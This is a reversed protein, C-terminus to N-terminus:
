MADLLRQADARSAFPQSASLLGSLIERSQARQGAGRLAYAYHYEVEPDGTLVKAAHALLPVARLANGNRALVWGLTDDVDASEPALQHAQEALPEARSDNLRSYIWALNNLATVSQPARGLATEFEVAAPRLSRISLYYGGLVEHVRWDDPTRTLWQELPEEPHAQHTALRTRFLQTAVVATPRIAQAQAYATLAADTDGLNSEVYGKLALASADGPQRALLENVRVLAEAPHGLRLFVTALLKRAELNDPAQWVVRELEQRAQQLDGRGLEAAGLRMRAQTDDPVKAVVRELQEIAHRLDGRALAVRADLLASLPADPILEGLAAQSKAAAALKGQALRTETLLVLARVRDPLPQTRSMRQVALSLSSEAAAYQGRAALIRGQMLPLLPSRTDREMAVALEQQAADLRNQQALAEAMVLRAETLDPHQALLADLIPTAEDARRLAVYARAQELSRLPEGPDVTHHAIADLVAQAQGTALLTRVRLADIEQGKAGAALAHELASQTAKLDGVELSLQALLQWATANNGDRLIVARLEIAAGQWDGSKMDKRAVAIRHGPTILLNCGSLLLLVGLIGASRARAAHTSHLRDLM